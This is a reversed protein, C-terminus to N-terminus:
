SAFVKCKLFKMRKSWHRSNEYKMVKNSKELVIIQVTINISAENSNHFCNVVQKRM